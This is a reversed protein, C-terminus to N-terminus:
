KYIHLQMTHFFLLNNKNFIVKVISLVSSLLLLKHLIVKLKIAITNDLYSIHVILTVPNFPALCARSGSM